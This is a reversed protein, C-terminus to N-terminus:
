RWAPVRGRRRALEAREGPLTGGWIGYPEPHDLARELCASRVPCARCFALAVAIANGAQPSEPFFLEPEADRCAARTIDIDM